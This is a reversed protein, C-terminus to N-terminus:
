GSGDDARVQGRPLETHSQTAEPMGGNALADAFYRLPWYHGNREIKLKGPHATVDITYALQLPANTAPAPDDTNIIALAFEACRGHNRAGHSLDMFGRMGFPDLYITRIEPIKQGSTERLADCLADPVYAGASHAVLKLRSLKTLRALEEGLARGVRRANSRARLRNDSAPSWDYNVVYEHAGHRSRYHRAIEELVPDGADESGHFILVLGSTDTPLDLPMVPFDDATRTYAELAAGGLALAVMSTFLIRLYM